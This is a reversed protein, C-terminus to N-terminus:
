ATQCFFFLLFFRQVENLFVTYYVTYVNKCLVGLQSSNGEEEKKIQCRLLCRRPVLRVACWKEDRPCPQWISFFCLLFFHSGSMGPLFYSM